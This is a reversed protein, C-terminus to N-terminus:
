QRVVSRVAFDPWRAYVEDLLRSFSKSTVYHGVRRVWDAANEDIEQEIEEVRTRGDDTLTYNAYRGTKERRLLGEAILSDRAGYVRVDFPGYDYPRFRFLTRWSTRGAQSIIFCGKMIRIPDLDYQGEEAGDALLLILDERTV